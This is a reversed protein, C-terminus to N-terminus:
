QHYTRVLVVSNMPFKYVAGNLGHEKWPIGHTSAACSLKWPEGHGKWPYEMVNGYIGMVSPLMRVITNVSKMPFGHIGWPIWTKRM